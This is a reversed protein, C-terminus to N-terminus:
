QEDWLEPKRNSEEGVPIVGTQTAEWLVTSKMSVRAHQGVPDLGRVPWLIRNPVYYAERRGDEKAPGRRVYLLQAKQLIELIKSLKPLVNSNKESVTFSLARPESKHHMLRHKFHKALADLLRFAREGDSVNCDEIDRAIDNELWAWARESLRLLVQTQVDPPIKQITTEGDSLGAPEARSLAGDFMWYCPELLNRVVGTSVFVLTEFGSYPPRNAKPPLSRFYKARSYKYVYDSVSKSDKYKEQAERRAETRFRELDRAMSQNEPFFNEPKCNVSIRQLRKEVLRSAHKYFDSSRNLYPAELDITTYDHGELIAGGSAPVKSPAGIKAVAVKFSFLSHDRYAIWSNLRRVQHNDLVQADDILLLFHSDRLKPINRQCMQMIPVVISPFSFTDQYFTDSPPQNMARQTELLERDLIGRLASFVPLSGDLDLGLRLNLEQRLPDVDVDDLVRPIKELTKALAYAISMSFYHESLVSGKYEDLLEHEARHILPTNCPTYVGIRSMTPETNSQMAVEQQVEWSNFLLAMTKGSGREGTIFINRKSQIFRAYNFDDVYCEAIMNVDLNNAADYQFPNDDLRM